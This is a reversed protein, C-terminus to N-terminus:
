CEEEEKKEQKLIYIKHGCVLIEDEKLGDQIPTIVYLCGRFRKWLWSLKNFFRGM